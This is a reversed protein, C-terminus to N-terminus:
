EAETPAAAEAVEPAPELAVSEAVAEAVAEAAAEVIEAASEPLGETEAAEESKKTRKSKTTAATLPEDNAEALAKNFIEAKDPKPAAVEIGSPVSTDGTFKQWDGSRKFIAVVAETPQAGVGLWYQARESDVKIISPDSKPHYQGIEEVPRGDRKSRSDIVIIRYHPDRIKGLRKLRIKTAV